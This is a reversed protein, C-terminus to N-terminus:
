QSSNGRICRLPNVHNSTKLLEQLYESIELFDPTFIDMWVKQTEQNLSKRLTKAYLCLATLAGLPMRNERKKKKKKQCFMPGM